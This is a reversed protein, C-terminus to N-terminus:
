AKGKGAKAKAKQAETPKALNASVDPANLPPLRAGRVTSSAAAQQDNFQKAAAAMTLEMANGRRQTMRRGDTKSESSAKRLLEEMSGKHWGIQWEDRSIKQDGDEDLIRLLRHAAGTPFEALMYKVLEKTTIYGSNDADIRDFINDAIPDPAKPAQDAAIAEAINRTMNVANYWRLVIKVPAASRQEMGKMDANKVAKASAKWKADDGKADAEPTLKLKEMKEKIDKPKKLLRQIDGWKKLDKMNYGILSFVGQFLAFEDKDIVKEDFTRLEGFVRHPDFSCLQFQIENALKEPMEVRKAEFADLVAKESALPPITGPTLDEIIEIAELLLSACTHLLMLLQENMVTYTGTTVTLTGISEGLKWSLPLVFKTPDDPDSYMLPSWKWAEELLEGGSKEKGSDVKRGDQAGAGEQEMVFKVYVLSKMANSAKKIFEKVYQGAMAAQERKWVREMLPGAQRALDMLLEDPVAPPGSVLCAFTDGAATKLPAVSRAKDSDEKLGHANQLVAEGSRMVEWPGTHAKNTTATKSRLNAGTKLEADDSAYYVKLQEPDLPHWGVLAAAHPTINPEAISLTTCLFEALGMTTAKISKNEGLAASQFEDISKVWLEKHTLLEFDGQMELNFRKMAVSSADADGMREELEIFDANVSKAIAEVDAFEHRMATLNTRMENMLQHAGLGERRKQEAKRKREQEPSLPKEKQRISVPLVKTKQTVLTRPPPADSVASQKKWRSLGILSFM